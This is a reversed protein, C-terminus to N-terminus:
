EAAKKKKKKKAAAFVDDLEAEADLPPAAEAPASEAIAAVEAEVAPPAAADDSVPTAAGGEVPRTCLAPAIRMAAAVPPPLVWAPICLVQQAPHLALARGSGVVLGDLLDALYEAAKPIDVVIDDYLDLLAEVQAALMAPTVARAPLLGCLAAGADRRDAASEADLGAQLLAGVFGGRLTLPAARSAAVSAVAAAVDKSSRLEQSIHTLTHPFASSHQYHTTARM